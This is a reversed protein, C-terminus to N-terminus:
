YGDCVLRSGWYKARKSCCMEGGTTAQEADVCCAAGSGCTPSWNRKARSSCCASAIVTCTGVGLCAQTTMETDTESTLSDNGPATTRDANNGSISTPEQKERALEGRDSDPAGCGSLAAAAMIAVARCIKGTMDLM